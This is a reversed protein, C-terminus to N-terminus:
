SGKNDDNRLWDGDDGAFTKTTRGIEVVVVLVVMMMAENITELPITMM